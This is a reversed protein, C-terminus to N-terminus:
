RATGADSTRPVFSLAELRGAMPPSAERDVKVCIVTPSRRALAERVAPALEESETVLTAEAGLGRAMAVVDFGRRFFSSPARGGCGRQFGVHCMGHGGNDLVVWVPGPLGNDVAVNIESATMAFAADGLLAVVPETTAFQGGIAGPIAHGMCGFTLNVHFRGPIDRTLLSIAWCMTNGIDSFVHAQPSVERRLVSMVQEPRIPGGHGGREPSLWAPIARPGEVHWPERPRGDPGDLERCMAEAVAAADGCLAVEVPFNRGIMEEMVDVQIIKKDGLRQTWGGSSLEGLRSGIVLLADAEDGIVRDALRSGAFGFPGVSLVHREPFVGKARPTSAVPCGLREALQVIAPSAGSLLAGYGALIAPRRAEALLAMARRVASVDMPRPRHRSPVPTPSFVDPEVEASGVDSPLCLAVPGLRGSLAVHVLDRTVRGAQAASTLLVTKKTVRELLAVTDLEQAAGKGAVSLPPTAAIIFAPIFDHLAVAAASLMNTTGPGATVVCGAMRGSVRAYGDAAFLAGDERRALVTSIDERRDYLAEYVPMLPGGPIGFAVRVGSSILQGIVAGAATRRGDPFRGLLESAVKSGDDQRGQLSGSDMM